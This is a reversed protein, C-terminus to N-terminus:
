EGSSALCWPELADRMTRIFFEYSAEGDREQYHFHLRQLAAIAAERGSSEGRSVGWATSRIMEAAFGWGEDVAAIITEACAEAAREVAAIGDQSPDELWARVAKLAARPRAHTSAEPRVRTWEELILDGLALAARVAIERDWRGFADTWACWGPPGDPDLSRSAPGLALVSPEHGLHALVELAHPRLDGAAARARLWRSADIPDGSRRFRRELERLQEDM